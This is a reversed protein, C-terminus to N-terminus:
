FGVLVRVVDGAAGDELAKGVIHMSFPPASGGANAVRATSDAVVYHGATVTNGCEALATGGQVTVTVEDGSQAAYLSTDFPTGPAKRSHIQTVGFVPFSLATSMELVTFDDSLFVVRGRRLNGGSVATKTHNHM